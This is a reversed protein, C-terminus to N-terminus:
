APAVRHFKGFREIIYSTQQQVVFVMGLLLLIVLITIIMTTSGFIFQLVYEM